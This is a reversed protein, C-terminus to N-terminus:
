ILETTPPSFFSKMSKKATMAVPCVPPYSTDGADGRLRMKKRQKMIAHFKGESFTAKAHKALYVLCDVCIHFSCRNDEKVFEWCAKKKDEACFCSDKKNCQIIKWCPKESQLHM